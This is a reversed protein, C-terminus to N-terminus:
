LVYVHGVVYFSFPDRFYADKMIVPLMMTVAPIIYLALAHFISPIKSCFKFNKETLILETWLGKHQSITPWWM